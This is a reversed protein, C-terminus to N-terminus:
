GLILPEIFAHLQAAIRQLQAEGIGVAAGTNRVGVLPQQQLDHTAILVQKDAFILDLVRPLPAVLQDCAPLLRAIRGFRVCCAGPPRHAGNGQNSTVPPGPIAIHSSSNGAPRVARSNSLGSSSALASASWTASRKLAAMSLLRCPVAVSTTDPPLLGTANKWASACFGSLHDLTQMLRASSRQTGVSCSSLLAPRSLRKRNWPAAASAPKKLRYRGVWVSSSAAAAVSSASLSSGFISTRTSPM